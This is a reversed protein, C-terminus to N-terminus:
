ILHTGNIFLFFHFKFAPITQRNKQGGILKEKGVDLKQSIFKRFNEFIFFKVKKLILKQRKGV